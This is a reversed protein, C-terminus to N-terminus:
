MLSYNMSRGCLRYKNFSPANNLMILLKIAQPSGV